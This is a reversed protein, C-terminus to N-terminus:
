MMVMNLPRCINHINVLSPVIPEVGVGYGWNVFSCDVCSSGFLVVVTMFGYLWLSQLLSETVCLLSHKAIFVSPLYM